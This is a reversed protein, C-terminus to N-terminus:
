LGYKAMLRQAGAKGARQGAQMLNKRSGFAMIDEQHTNVSIIEDAMRTAELMEQKLHNWIIYSEYQTERNAKILEGMDLVNVLIILNYGERRQMRILERVAFAAGVQNGYPEFIPPFPICRKIAEEYPGQRVWQTKGTTLEQTPCVFPVRAQEISLHGFVDSLFSSLKSVSVAEMERSLFGKSPLADDRLKLLKWEVENTLGQVSYLGAILAGWEIGVISHVPIKALELERLVGLHAFAKVGGPGLIVSIKPPEAGRKPPPPSVEDSTKGADGKPPPTVAEETRPREGVEVKKEALSPEVPTSRNKQPAACGFFIPTLFLFGWLTNRSKKM